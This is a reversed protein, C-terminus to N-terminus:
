LQEILYYRNSAFGEFGWEARYHCKIEDNENTYVGDAAGTYWHEMERSYGGMEKYRIAFPYDIEGNYLKTKEVPIMIGMGPYKFNNSGFVREHNLADWKAHHFTYGSKTFSSFGMAVALEKSGGFAGYSIAGNQYFDAISNDFALSLDIGMYVSNERAGRVKNLRRIIDEFDTLTWGGALTWNKVNGGSRIFPLIGETGREGTTIVATNTIKESVLMQSECYDIMRRYTDSEGKWRWVWGSNGSYEDFVEFWIRNTAESGSIDYSEKVIMTNNTYEIPLPTRGEPQGTKEAWTNGIIIYDQATVFSLTVLPDYPAVTLTHATPVATSKAQIFALQKNPLQITDNVRPFTTGSLHYGAAITITVAAGPGAAAINNEVRFNNHIYDEEFHQYNTQGVSEFRGTLRILGTLSERGYKRAFMDRYEPKHINTVSSIYNDTTAVQTASPIAM